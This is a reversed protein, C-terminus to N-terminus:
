AREIGVGAKELKARGIEIRLTAAKVDKSRKSEAEFKTQWLTVNKIAEIRYLPGKRDM